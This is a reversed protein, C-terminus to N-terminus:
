PLQFRLSLTQPIGIDQSGIRVAYTVGFRGYVFGSGFSLTSTHKTASLGGLFRMQNWQAYNGIKIKWENHLSSFESTLYIRNNISKLSLGKSIGALFRNPLKPKEHYFDSVTGLNLLSIGMSWENDLIKSYGLDITLGTSNRDYITFYLARITAGIQGAPTKFSVGSGISFGYAAFTASPDDSPRNDRFELDSIGAQRLFIRNSYNGIKHNYSVGSIRIDGYWYGSNLYLSPGLQPSQILAPNVNPSGGFSVHSGMALDHAGVPFMLFQTGIASLSSGCSILCIFFTRFTLGM